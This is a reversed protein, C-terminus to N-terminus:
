LQNSDVIYSLIMTIGLQYNDDSYIPLIVISLLNNDDVWQNGVFHDPGLFLAAM